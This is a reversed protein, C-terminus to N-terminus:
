STSAKGNRYRVTHYFDGGFELVSCPTGDATIGLETTEIHQWKSWPWRREWVEIRTSGCFSEFAFNPEHKDKLPCALGMFTDAPAEVRAILMHRLSQVVINVVGALSDHKVSMFPSVFGISMTFPPRFDCHCKASRYGLLYAHVGPLALGGAMCFREGAKGFSQTWLWSRPFSSGWNKEMHALGIGTRTTGRYTVSYDAHSGISYVHWNLPLFSSLHVLFGMPSSLAQGVSWPARRTLKLAVTLHQDPLFVDYEAVDPGVKMSGIGDAHLEFTIANPRGSKNPYSTVICTDPYLEYKFPHLQGPVKHSPSYSLHVFNKRNIADKVTCFILVLSSGDELQVRTYYGEFAPFRHPPFHDYNFFSTLFTTFTWFRSILYSILFFCLSTLSIM